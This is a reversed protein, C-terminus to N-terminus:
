LEREALEWLRNLYDGFHADAPLPRQELSERWRREKAEITTQEEPIRHTTALAEREKLHQVFAELGSAAKTQQKELKTLRSTITSM